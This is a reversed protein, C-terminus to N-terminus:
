NPKVKSKPNAAEERERMLKARQKALKDIKRHWKVFREYERDAIPRLPQPTQSLFHDVFEEVRLPRRGFQMRRRITLVERACRLIQGPSYGKTVTALASLDLDRPVSPFPLLARKWLLVTSGYDPRPFILFKDFCKKLPGVKAVWPRDTTGVLLIRDDPKLQKVIMKLLWKGLKTPQQHAETAPVKKYFARHVEELAIVSPQLLRAVKLIMQLFAPMGPDPIPQCSEVSLDFLVSDTEHCIAELLLTKGYGSPAVLCLSRPKPITALPGMGYLFSRVITRIEGLGAPPDQEFRQRREYAAYNLDGVFEDITRKQYAKIVNGNVLEEFLSEVTRDATLDIPERNKKKKKSDGKKAKPPRPAKPPKYKQREDVCLAQQLLEREAKLLDHVDAHLEQHIEAFQELRIWEMIPLETVNEMEGIFAWDKRYRHLTEGLILYANSVFEPDSFDYTKGEKKQRARKERALEKAREKEERKKSLELERATKRADAEKKRQEPSKLKELRKLREGELYEMPTRTEGRVILVTGGQFPEPIVDFAHAEDYWQRFWARVLDTIDELLAPGRTRLIRAREDAVAELFRQDFAVKQNRRETRARDVAVMPTRDIPKQDDFLGLFRSREYRARKRAKAARWGRWCRHIRRAARNLKQKQCEEDAVRLAEAEALALATDLKDSQAANIRSSDVTSPKVAVQDTVAEDQWGPPKYYAFAVLDKQEMQFNWDFVTRKVPFLMQQGPRFSFEYPVNVVEEHIPKPFYRDPHLRYNTRLVRAQRAKEHALILQIAWQLREKRRDRKVTPRKLKASASREERQEGNELSNDQQEKEEEEDTSNDSAPNFRELRKSCLLEQLHPPRKAPFYCPRVAQVDDPILHLEQLAGDIYVFDSLEIDKLMAGLELLRTNSAELLYQVVERKQVQLTQDYCHELSRCLQVYRCYLDSVLRHVTRVDKTSEAAQVFQERSLVDEIQKSTAIWFKAIGKAQAM